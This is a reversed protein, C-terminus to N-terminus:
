GGAMADAQAQQRQHALAHQEHDWNRWACGASTQACRLLRCSFCVMDRKSLTAAPDSVTRRKGM